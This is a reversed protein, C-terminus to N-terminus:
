GVPEVRCLIGGTGDDFMFFAVSDGVDYLEGNLAILPPTVVGPRSASEVTYRAAAGAEDAERVRGREIMAGYRACKEESM